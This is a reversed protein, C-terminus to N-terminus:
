LQEGLADAMSGDYREFDTMLEYFLEREALVAHVERDDSM